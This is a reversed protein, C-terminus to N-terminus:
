GNYEGWKQPSDFVYGDCQDCLSASRTGEIDHCCLAFRGDWLVVSWRDRLYSCRAAGQNKKAVDQVYGSFSVKEKKPADNEVEISHETFEFGDPVVFASKRIGFPDTHLRLWSLGCELLRDLRAQSLIEGNTSFGVKIGRAHALSVFQELSKHLLPEGFHHLSVSDNQMVDLAQAFTELTMFGRAREHTPHPCYSCKANCFNTVDIQYIKVSKPPAEFVSRPCWAMAEETFLKLHM